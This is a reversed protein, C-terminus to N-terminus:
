AEEDGKPEAHHCFGNEDTVVVGRHTTCCKQDYGNYFWRCDRCHVIKAQKEEPKM